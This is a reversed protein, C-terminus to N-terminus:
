EQRDCLVALFSLHIAWKFCKAFHLESFVSYFGCCVFPEFSPQVSLAM